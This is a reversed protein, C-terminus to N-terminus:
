THSRPEAYEADLLQDILMSLEALQSLTMEAPCGEIASDFFADDLPIGQGQLNGTFIVVKGDRVGIVVGDGNVGAIAIARPRGIDKM